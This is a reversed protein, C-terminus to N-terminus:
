RRTVLWTQTLPGDTAELVRLVVEQDYDPFTLTGLPRAVIADGNLDEPIWIIRDTGEIYEANGDNVEDGFRNIKSHLRARTEVPASMSADMYFARVGLTTNVVRRANRKASAFDFGM